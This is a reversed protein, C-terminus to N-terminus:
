DYIYQFKKVGWDVLTKLQVEQATEPGWGFRTVTGVRKLDGKGLHFGWLHDGDWDFAAQMVDNLDLLTFSLPVEVWRWIKPATHNVEVRLRAVGEIM